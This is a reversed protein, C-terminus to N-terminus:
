SNYDLGALVYSDKALSEAFVKTPTALVHSSAQQWPSLTEYLGLAILIFICSGELILFLLLLFHRFTGGGKLDGNNKVTNSLALYHM